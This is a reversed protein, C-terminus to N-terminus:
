RTKGKEEYARIFAVIERLFNELDKLNSLVIYYLEEPTVERYFHVMRNRYGTM